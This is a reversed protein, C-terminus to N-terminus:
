RRFTKAILVGALVTAVAAGGIAIYKATQAKASQEAEAKRAEADAAAAKAKAEEQKAKSVSIKTDYKKTVKATKRKEQELKRASRASIGTTILSTAIDAGQSALRTTDSEMYEAAAGYGFQKGQVAPSFPFNPKFPQHSSYFM